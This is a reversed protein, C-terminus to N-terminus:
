YSKMLIYSPDAELDLARDKGSEQPREPVGAPLPPTPPGHGDGPCYCCAREHLALQLGALPSAPACLESEQLLKDGEPDALLTPTRHSLFSLALVKSQFINYPLKWYVPLTQSIHTSKCATRLPQLDSPIKLIAPAARYGFANEVRGM